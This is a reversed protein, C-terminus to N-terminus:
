GRESNINGIFPCKTDKLWVGGGGGRSSALSPFGSHLGPLWKRPSPCSFAAGTHHPLLLRPGLAPTWAPCRRISFVPGLSAGQGAGRIFVQGHGQTERCRKPNQGLANPRHIAASCMLDHQNPPSPLDPELQHPQATRAQIGPLRSVPRKPARGECSALATRLVLEM